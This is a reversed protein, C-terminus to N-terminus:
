RRALLEINQIYRKLNTRAKVLTIENLSKLSKEQSAIKGLDLNIYAIEDEIIELEGKLYQIISESDKIEVEQNANEINETNTDKATDSM